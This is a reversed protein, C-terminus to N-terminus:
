SPPDDHKPRKPCAAQKTAHLLPQTLADVGRLNVRIGWNLTGLIPFLFNCFLSRSGIHQYSTQGISNGVTHGWGQSNGQDPKNM